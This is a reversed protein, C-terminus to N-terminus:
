IGNICYYNKNVFQLFRFKKFTDDSFSLQVELGLSFMEKEHVLVICKNNLCFM